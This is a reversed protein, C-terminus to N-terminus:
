EQVQPAPISEKILCDLFRVANEPQKTNDIVGVIVKDGLGGYSNYLANGSMDIGHPAAPLTEIVNGDTDTKVESSMVLLDKVEEYLDPPLLESLDMLYGLGSYQMFVDEPLFVVDLSQSGLMATVKMLNGYEELNYNSVDIWQSKETLGYFGRLDERLADADTLYTDNLFGISLVDEQRRFAMTYILSGATILLIVAVIVKKLYYDKFYVAKEKKSLASIDKKGLSDDRKQYLLSDDDLATKKHEIDM